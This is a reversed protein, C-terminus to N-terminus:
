ALSLLHSALPVTGCKGRGRSRVEYPRVRNNESNSMSSAGQDLQKTLPWPGLCSCYWRFIGRIRGTLESCTVLWKELRQTCKGWATYCCLLLVQALQLLLPFTASANHKNPTLSSSSSSLKQVAPPWLLGSGAVKRQGACLIRYIAEGQSIPVCGPSHKLRLNLFRLPLLGEPKGSTGHSVQAPHGQAGFINPM